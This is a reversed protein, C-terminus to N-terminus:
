KISSQDGTTSEQIRQEQMPIERELQDAVSAPSERVREADLDAQLQERSSIAPAGFTTQKKDSTRASNKIRLSQKGISSPM